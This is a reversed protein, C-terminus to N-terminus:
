SAAWLSDDEARHERDAAQADLDDELRWGAAQEWPVEGDVVVPRCKDATM